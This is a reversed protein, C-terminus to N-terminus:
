FQAVPMEGAIAIAVEESTRSGIDLGIPAHIRALEEDTLGEARLRRSREEKTRGSEM